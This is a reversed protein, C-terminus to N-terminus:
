HIYVYLIKDKSINNCKIFKYYFCLIYCVKPESIKNLENMNHCLRLYKFYFPNNRAGEFNKLLRDSM